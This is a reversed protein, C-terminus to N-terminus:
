AESISNEARKYLEQKARGHGKLRNERKIADNKALFKECYVLVWKGKRKNTFSKGDQHNHEQLRRETDSTIGIYKEGSRDNVLM